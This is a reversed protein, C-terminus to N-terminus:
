YTTRHSPTRGPRATENIFGRIQWYKALNSCKDLQFDLQALKYKRTELKANIGICTSNRTIKKALKSRTDLDAALLFRKQELKEIEERLTTQGYKDAICWSLATKISSFEGRNQNNKNLSIQGDTDLIVYDKFVSYGGDVPYIAIKELKQYEDNILIDLKNRISNSKKM